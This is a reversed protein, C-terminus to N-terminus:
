NRGLCFIAGRPLQSLIPQVSIVPFITRLKIFGPDSSNRRVFRCFRPFDHNEVNEHNEFALPQTWGAAKPSFVNQFIVGGFFFQSVSFVEISMFIAIQKVLLGEINVMQEITEVM